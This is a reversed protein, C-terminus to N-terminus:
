FYYTKLDNLFQSAVGSIPTKPLNNNYNICKSFNGDSFLFVGKPIRYSLNREPIWKKSVSIVPLGHELMAALSGSKELLAPPTTVIGMTSRQLIESIKEIPQEGLIEILLGESKWSNKWKEREKGNRGVLKLTILVKHERVYKAAEKAFQEIPAGSHIGGFLIFCIRDIKRLSDQDLNGKGKFSNFVPINSFLPLYVSNIGSRNLLSQYLHCQTHILSAKLKKILYLIMFKQLNGWLVEKVTSHSNIGVWLEHFMLHWKHGNGVQILQRGLHVPIGKPHFSYPVFQLSIIDPNFFDISKKTISLRSKIPLISALRLVPVHVGDIEQMNEVLSFIQRDHIAILAISHGQKILECALRRTYDGVGDCGPELSGCIFTIKM